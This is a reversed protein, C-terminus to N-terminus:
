RIVWRSIVAQIDIEQLLPLLYKQLQMREHRPSLCSYPGHPEQGLSWHGLFSSLVDIPCGRESLETRLFKRNANLPLPYDLSALPQIMSASCIPLVKHKNEDLLFLYPLVSKDPRPLMPYHSEWFAYVVRRHAEYATLQEELVPALWIRRTHHGKDDNKDSIWAWQGVPDRRFSDININRVARYGTCYGIVLATYISYLNNYEIPNNSSGLDKRVRQLLRKVENLSPCHAAGVGLKPRSLLAEPLEPLPPMDPRDQYRERRIKEVLEVVMDRYRTALHEVTLTTYHRATAVSSHMKGTILMANVPDDCSLLRMFLDNGLRAATIRLGTKSRHTEFISDLARRYTTINHGSFPQYASAGDGPESGDSIMKMLAHAQWLDPLYLHEGGPRCLSDVEDPLKRKHKYIPVRVRWANGDLFYALEVNDGVKAGEPVVSLHRMRELDSGTWYMLIGLAAAKRYLLRRSKDKVADGLTRMAAAVEGITMYEYSIPLHQNLVARRHAFGIAAMIQDHQTGRAACAYNVLVQEDDESGIEEEPLGSGTWEEIEGWLSLVRGMPGIGQEGDGPDPRSLRMNNGYEVYYATSKRRRGSRRSGHHGERLKATNNIWKTGLTKFPRALEDLDTVPTDSLERLFDETKVRLELELLKPWMGVNSYDRAAHCSQYISNNHEGLIPLRGSHSLYDDISAHQRLLGHHTYFLHWQLLRFNVVIDKTIRDIRNVKNGEAVLRERITEEDVQNWLLSYLANRELCLGKLPHVRLSEGKQKASLQEGCEDVLLKAHGLLQTIQVQWPTIKEFYLQETVGRSFAVDIVTSLNDVIRLLGTLAPEANIAWLLTNVRDVDIGKERCVRILALYPVSEKPAPYKNKRM